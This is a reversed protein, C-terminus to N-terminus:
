LSPCVKGLPGERHGRPVLAADLRVSPTVPEVAGEESGSSVLRGGGGHPRPTVVLRKPAVVGRGEGVRPGRPRTLAVVMQLPWEGGKRRPMGRLAWARPLM